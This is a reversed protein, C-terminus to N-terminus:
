KKDYINNKIIYFIITVFGIILALTNDALFGVTKKALNLLFSVITGIIAPLSELAKKGLKGLLSALSRLTKKLGVMM